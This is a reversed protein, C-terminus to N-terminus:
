AVVRDKGDGGSSGGSTSRSKMPDTGAAHQAAEDASKRDIGARRARRDHGLAAAAGLKRTKHRSRNDDRQEREARRQEAVHRLCREAAPNKKQRLPDERGALDRADIRRSKGGDEQAQAGGGGEAQEG